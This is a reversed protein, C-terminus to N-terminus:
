FLMPLSLDCGKLNRDAKAQRAKRKYKHAEKCAEKRPRDQPKAILRLLLRESLM